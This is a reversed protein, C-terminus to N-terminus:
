HSSQNYLEWRTRYEGNLAMLADHNGSEIIHGTDLVIIQDCNRITTLRHAISVTTMGHEAQFKEINAQVKAETVNDLASTAEDLLLLRPRRLLGRAIAVRQKQGGSLARGKYGVDTDYGEPWGSVEEHIGALKAAEQVEEDTADSRAYRINDRVSGRFLNPEQLVISINERWQRIGISPLSRGNVMISGSRWPYFRALMQIITSKGCGTQGMLGNSTGNEFRFDAQAFVVQKPRAPYIFQVQNFDIQCGEGEVDAGDAYVDVDPVRDIVSFVRYASKSADVMKTAFSGAEGAGQAGSLIASAVTVVEQFTAEGNSILKGGYWFCLAYVGYFVFQTLGYVVGIIIGKTTEAPLEKAQVAKFAEVRNDKLNFSTVTRVNSLAETVITDDNDGEKKRTIGVMMLHQIVASGVIIPLCATAVLALKWQYIFGVILGSGITCFMQVKLGISPGWLQHVAECDGSLMGSLTGADRGPIDFFSMDQRLINRYLMTRLKTTLHEGALGYFGHLVWGVFSAFAFILFMPAYLNTGRQLEDKDHNIEYEGLVRLMAAFLIANTPRTAGTLASGLVGLFVACVHERNLKMLRCTGVKTRKIEWDVLDEIPVQQRETLPAEENLRRLAEEDLINNFDRMDAARRNPSGSSGGSSSVAGQARAMAAFEGNKAILDDFSGSETIRSGETGDYSIYYICDVDRITALRHAIVIITMSGLAMLEDLAAQVEVESKRDLASTAEDLILVAPRAGVATDYQDPLSMITDHINAQKCAEIVEEMTADARGVRVNELMTGAFLNPEQSVIGLHERWGKLSLESMDVGDVLVSGEVPDYFRQVLGIISSKGCGSAGSFAVKQGRKITLNLNHFLVTDPRSPYVFKVNRFEIADRFEEVPKGPADIDVPPVRDITAYIEYAAARAETFATFSPAVFGFGFSGMLVSFFTSIVDEMSSRDSKVLFASFFFALTYSVFVLAMVIGTTVGSIFEKRIGEKEASLIANHFREVEYEEKGFTQVTRINELVETALAGAEAFHKRSRETMRMLLKGLIGSMIAIFPMMGFMMLALEWCFVFGFIFGMLGMSLNFVGNTLKDNIGNQIVRTDGTMRATLEGPTHSDHWGIDQRLVAEFYRLRITAAQRSASVTWTLVYTGTTVAVGCGIYVMILATSATSSEVGTQSMLDGMIRGFVFSFAPIGGGSIVAAIVGIVMIVRDGCTAFRFMDCIPVVKKENEPTDEPKNIADEKSTTDSGGVSLPNLSPSPITPSGDGETMDEPADFAVVADGDRHTPPMSCLLNRTNDTPLSGFVEAMKHFWHLNPVPPLCNDLNSIGYHLHTASNM